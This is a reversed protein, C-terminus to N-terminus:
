RQVEEAEKGVAIHVAVDAVQLRHHEFRFFLADPTDADMRQEVAAVHRFGGRQVVDIGKFGEEGVDVFLAEITTM